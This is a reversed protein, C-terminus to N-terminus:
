IGALTRPSLRVLTELKVRLYLRLGDLQQNPPVSVIKLMVFTMFFTEEQVEERKESYRSRRVAGRRNSMGTSVIDPSM